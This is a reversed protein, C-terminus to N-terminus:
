PSTEAGSDGTKLHIVASTLTFELNKLKMHILSNRPIQLRTHSSNLLRRLGVQARKQPLSNMRSSADLRTTPRTCGSPSPACFWAPEVQGVPQHITGTPAVETALCGAPNGMPAFENAITPCPAIRPQFREWLIAGTCPRLDPAVRRRQASFWAPKVRGVCDVEVGARLLSSQERVAKAGEWQGGNPRTASPALRRRHPVTRSQTTVGPM